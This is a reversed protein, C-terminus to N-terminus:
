CPGAHFNSSTRAIQVEETRVRRRQYPIRTKAYRTYSAGAADLLHSIGDAAWATFRSLDGTITDIVERHGDLAGRIERIEEELRAIRQSLIRPPPPPPPAQAPTLDAQGGKAADPADEDAKPADASVGQPREPRSAVWAWTDGFRGCINLRALKHVNIVPLERSIVTLGRLGEDSVLGFHEALRGIFHSREEEGRGSITCAIMKHCLRRVPDRIHVYSPAAGLFDGDSLIKIWYDRLDGKDPVIRESESWFARFGARAMEEETHLRMFSQEWDAGIMYGDELERGFGLGPHRQDKPIIRRLNCKNDDDPRDWKSNDPYIKCFPLPNSRTLAKQEKKDYKSSSIENEDYTQSSESPEIVPNSKSTLGDNYIIAPFEREFNNYHGLDNFNSGTLNPSKNDNDSDTKLNNVYIIKYSFSNKDFIVTYDEDDSEDFSIRFDIEDNSPISVTPEYSLTTDSTSADNLVIAPFEIESDEKEAKYEKLKTGQSSITNTNGLVIAPFEAKFDMFYEDEYYHEIRRFRATQWNLTERRKQAREEELRIYEEMTINPNDM